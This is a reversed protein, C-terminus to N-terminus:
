NAWRAVIGEAKQIDEPEDIEAWSENGILHTALLLDGQAILQAVAAEYFQDTQGKSVWIELAPLLYDQLTERSFAYINVTKLADRYDFDVPQNIKLVMATAVGSNAFIITGNMPPQFKDVVAV